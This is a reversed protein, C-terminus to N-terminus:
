AANTISRRESVCVLGDGAIRAAIASASTPSSCRRSSGVTMARSSRPAASSPCSAATYRGVAVIAFWIASAIRPRRPVSSITSSVACMM